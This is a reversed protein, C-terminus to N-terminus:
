AGSRDPRADPLACDPNLHPEPVVFPAAGLLAPELERCLNLSLQISRDYLELITVTREEGTTSDTLPMPGHLCPAQKVCGPLYFLAAIERMRAPLLPHLMEVVHTIFPMAYLSQMRKFVNLCHLLADQLRPCACDVSATTFAEQLLMRVPLECCHMIHKLSYSRINSLTGALYVDLMTEFRRHMQVAHTRQAPDTDYYNGTEQYVLPHFCNDVVSHTLMGILMARVPGPHRAQAAAAAVSGIITLPDTGRGHMADAFDLVTKKWRRSRVYFAADHMVAGLQVCYPYQEALDGLASGQLVTTVRHAILWHTIEKPM